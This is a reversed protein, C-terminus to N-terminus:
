RNKLRSNKKVIEEQFGNEVVGNRIRGKEFKEFYNKTTKNEFSFSSNELVRRM